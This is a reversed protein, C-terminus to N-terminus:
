CVREFKKILDIELDSYSFYIDFVNKYANFPYNKIELWEM